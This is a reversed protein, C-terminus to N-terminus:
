KKVLPEGFCDFTVKFSVTEGDDTLDYAYPPMKNRDFEKKSFTYVKETKKKSMGVSQNSFGITM